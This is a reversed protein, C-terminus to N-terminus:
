AILGEHSLGEYLFTTPQLTTQTQLLLALQMQSLCHQRLETLGLEM